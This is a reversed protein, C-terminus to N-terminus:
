DPTSAQLQARSLAAQSIDIVEQALAKAERVYPALDDPSRWPIMLADMLNMAKINESELLAEALDGPEILRAAEGCMKGNEVVWARIGALGGRPAEPWQRVEEATYCVP